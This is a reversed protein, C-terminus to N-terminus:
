LFRGIRMHYHHSKRKSLPSVTSGLFTSSTSKLTSESLGRHLQVKTDQSLYVSRNETRNSFGIINCWLAKTKIVVDRCWRNLFSLFFLFLSLYVAFYYTLPSHLLSVTEFAFFEVRQLTTGYQKNNDITTQPIEHGWGSQRVPGVHIMRITLTKMSKPMSNALWRSRHKLQQRGRVVDYQSVATIHAHAFCSGIVLRNM